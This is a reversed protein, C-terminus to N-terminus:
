MRPHCLGAYLTMEPFTKFGTKFGPIARILLFFFDTNFISLRFAQSTPFVQKQTDVCLWGAKQEAKRKM